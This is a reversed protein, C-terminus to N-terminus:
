TYGYRELERAALETAAAVEAPDRRRHVGISKTHGTGLRRRVGRNVEHGLFAAVQGGVAQPDRMLEEYRVTLVRDAPAGDYADACRRVMERWMWVGRVYPTAALFADEDGDGVWWPVFRHDVKRGLPAETSDLATLRDDTLVGYKRELSDACDRGDRHIHVIRTGPLARASFDPAFALFPEKYVVTRIQRRGRLTAVLEGTSLDRKLWEGAAWGRSHAAHDCFFELSFRLSRDLLHDLEASTSTAALHAMEPPYILGSVVEAGDLPQLARALFTTGSRPCGLIIAYDTV